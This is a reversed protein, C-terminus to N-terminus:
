VSRITWSSETGPASESPDVIRWFTRFQACILYNQVGFLVSRTVTFHGSRANPMLKGRPHLVALSGSRGRRTQSGTLRNESIGNAIQQSAARILIDGNGRSLRVDKQVSGRRIAIRNRSTVGAGM